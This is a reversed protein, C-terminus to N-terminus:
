VVRRQLNSEVLDLLEGLDFPKAIFAVEDRRSIVAASMLIVPMRSDSSTLEDVLEFGSMRPMMVDAIILDPQLRRALELAAQGDGAREVAYGEDELFQALLDVIAPEDDAILITPPRSQEDLGAPRFSM